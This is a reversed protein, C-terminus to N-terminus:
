VVTLDAVPAWTKVGSDWSVWAQPARRPSLESNIHSGHTDNHQIKGCDYDEGAGAEVCTGVTLVDAIDIYILAPDEAAVTRAEDVSLGDRAAEIPDNYKQLTLGNRAAFEIAPHGTIVATTM